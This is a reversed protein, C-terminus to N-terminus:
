HKHVIVGLQEGIHFNSDLNTLKSHECLCTVGQAAGARRVETGPCFCHVDLAPLSKVGAELPSSILLCSQAYM